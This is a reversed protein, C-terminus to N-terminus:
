KKSRVANHEKMPDLKMSELEAINQEIKVKETEDAAIEAELEIVQDQLEKIQANLESIQSEKQSTDGSIVESRASLKTITSDLIDNMSEHTSTAQPTENKSATSGSSVDM